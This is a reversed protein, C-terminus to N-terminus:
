TAICTDIKKMHFSVSYTPSANPVLSTSHNFLHGDNPDPRASSFLMYCTYPIKHRRRKTHLRWQSYTDYTTDLKLTEGDGKTTKGWYQQHKLAIKGMVFEDDGRRCSLFVVVFGLIRCSWM